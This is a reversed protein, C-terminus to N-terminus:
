TSVTADSYKIPWEGSEMEGDWKWDIGAHYFPAEPCGIEKWTDFGGIPKDGGTASPRLGEPSVRKLVAGNSSSTAAPSEVVSSPTPGQSISAAVLDPTDLEPPVEQEEEEALALSKEDIFFSIDFADDFPGGLMVQSPRSSTSAEPQQSFSHGYPAVGQAQGVISTLQQLIDDISQPEMSPGQNDSGLTSSEGSGSSGSVAELVQWSKELFSAASDTTATAGSVQLQQQAIEAAAAAANEASKSRKPSATRGQQGDDAPTEERQRKM